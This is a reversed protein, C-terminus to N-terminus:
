MAQSPPERHLSKSPSVTLVRMQRTLSQLALYDLSPKQILFLRIPDCATGKVLYLQQKYQMQISGCVRCSKTVGAQTYKSCSIAM